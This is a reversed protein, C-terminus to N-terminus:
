QYEALNSSALKEIIREYDETVENCNLWSYWNFITTEGDLNVPLQIPGVLYIAKDKSKILNIKDKLVSFVKSELKIKSM